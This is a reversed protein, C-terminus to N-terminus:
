PKKCKVGMSEYRYLAYLFDGDNLKKFDNITKSPCVKVTQRSPPNKIEAFVKVVNALSKLFIILILVLFLFLLINPKISDM